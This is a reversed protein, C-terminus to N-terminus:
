TPTTDSHLGSMYLALTRSAQKLSTHLVDLRLLDTETRLADWLAESCCMAKLDALDRFTSVRVMGHSSHEPKM